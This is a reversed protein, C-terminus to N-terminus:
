HVAYLAVRHVKKSALDLTLHPWCLRASVATETASGATELICSDKEDGTDKAACLGQNAQQTDAEVTM